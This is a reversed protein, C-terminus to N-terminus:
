FWQRHRLRWELSVVVRQWITQWLRYKAPSVVLDYCGVYDTVHKNFSTKFRGVGYFKHAENNIASSHPAGCFDYTEVGREKMWTIIEWQLLHSAGYTTKERISAGDKYLGKRGLYMSYAGAVLKGDFYAFFLQGHGSEAFANWYERYYDYDRISSEFRGAATDRLLDYMLRMNEDTMEVAHATVGDREARRIAHRGKQNLSAMVEELPPSLDLLVTSVNPQVPATPVLGQAVLAAKAEDSEIIEPEIKVAFVGSARALQQIKPLINFLSQVDTVGPGKSLYWYKGLFPVPKELVTVALNDIMEYRPSWGSRRKTEAMEKMQFVNGGDPNQSLRESWDDTKQLQFRSSMVTM